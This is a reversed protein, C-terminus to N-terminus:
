SKERLNVASIAKVCNDVIGDNNKTKLSDTTLTIVEQESNLLSPQNVAAEMTKVEKEALSNRPIIEVGSINTTLMKGNLDWVGDIYLDFEVLGKDSNTISSAVGKYSGDPSYISLADLWSAPLASSCKWAGVLSNSSANAGFSALAISLLVISSIKM